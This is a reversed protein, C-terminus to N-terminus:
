QLKEKIKNKKKELIMELDLWFDVAIMWAAFIVDAIEDELDTSSFKWKYTHQRWRRKNIQEALEWVEESLKAFSWLVDETQSEVYWFKQGIKNKCEKLFLQIDSVTM